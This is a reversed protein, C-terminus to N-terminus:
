EYFVSIRGVSVDVEESWPEPVISVRLTRANWGPLLPLRHFVKTVTLGYTLGDPPHNRAPKSMEVLGFMSLMGAHLEPHEQPDADVPLNLYVDYAPAILKSTINEFRVM